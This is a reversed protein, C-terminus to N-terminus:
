RATESGNIGMLSLAHNINSKLAQPIGVQSNKYAAEDGNTTQILQDNIKGLDSNLSRLFNFFSGSEQNNTTFYHLQYLNMFHKLLKRVNHSETAPLTQFDVGKRIGSAFSLIKERYTQNSVPSYEKPLDYADLCALIGEKNVVTGKLTSMDIYDGLQRMLNFHPSPVYGSEDFTRYASKLVLGIKRIGKLKRLRDPDSHLSNILSSLLSKDFAESWLNRATEFMAEREEPSIALTNFRLLISPQPPCADKPESM